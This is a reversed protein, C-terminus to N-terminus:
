NCNFSISVHAVNFPAFANSMFSLNPLKSFPFFRAHLKILLIEFLFIESVDVTLVFLKILKFSGTFNTLSKLEKFDTIHLSIYLLFANLLRNRTERSLKINELDNYFNIHQIRSIIEADYGEIYDSHM